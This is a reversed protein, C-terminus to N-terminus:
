NINQHIKNFTKISKIKGLSNKSSKLPASWLFVPNSWSPETKLGLFNPGKLCTSNMLAFHIKPPQPWCSVPYVFIHTLYNQCSVQWGTIYGDMCLHGYTCMRCLFFCFMPLSFMASQVTRIWHVFMGLLCLLCASWEVMDCCREDHMMVISAKLSAHTQGPGRLQSCSNYGASPRCKWSLNPWM